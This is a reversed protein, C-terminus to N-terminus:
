GNVFQFFIDFFSLFFGPKSMVQFHFIGAYDETFSQGPPVVRALIRQDLTLSAIAALLWCDGPNYLLPCESIPYYRINVAACMMHWCSPPNGGPTNGKQFGFWEMMVGGMQGNLLLVMGRVLLEKAFTQGQREMTLSSQTQASSRYLLVFWLFNFMEASTQSIDEPTKKYCSIAM